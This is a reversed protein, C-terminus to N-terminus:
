LSSKISELLKKIDSLGLTSNKLSWLRKALLVQAQCLEGNERNVRRRRRMREMEEEKKRRDNERWVKLEKRFEKAMGILGGPLGCMEATEVGLSDKSVGASLAFLPRFKDGGGCREVAFHRAAVLAPYARELEGAIDRFHTVFLSLMGQTRALREAVAWALAKGGVPATSRGFEDIVVLTTEGSKVRKGDCYNNCDKILVARIDRLEAAFSGGSGCNCDDDVDGVGNQLSTGNGGRLSSPSSSSPSTATTTIAAPICSMIRSVMRFSAFEAPVRCGMQAMIALLAVQRIYTSKGSMNPGTVIQIGTPGLFTDNPIFASNGSVCGAAAAAANGASDLIPHRGQKIAIPGDATFEPRVTPSNLTAYAAFSQLVDLHAVAEGALVLPTVASRLRSLLGSIVRASFTLVREMADANKRSLSDVPRTTFTWHGSLEEERTSSSGVSYRRRKKPSSTLSSTLDRKVYVCDIFLTPAVKSPDASGASCELYYQKARENRKLAIAPIIARYEAVLKGLDEATEAYEARAIDLFPDIGDRVAFSLEAKSLRKGTKLAFAGGGGGKVTIVKEIEARVTRLAPCLLNERIRVLLASKCGRLAREAGADM